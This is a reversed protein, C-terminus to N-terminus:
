GADPSVRESWEEACRKIDKLDQRIQEFSFGLAFFREVAESSLGRTSGDKRLIAIAALYADLQAEVRDLSPVVEQSRFASATASLFGAVAEGAKLVTPELEVRIPEPLPDQVARGIMVLDHRIRLLTRRVPATDPTDALRAKREHEAEAGVTALRSLSQGIGDQIKHLADTDLGSSLGLMLARLVRAMDELTRAAMEAVQGHARAPVVFYSVLFGSIAGVAVELIRDIASDLSSAPTFTPLLLVIIATVPAVRLRPYLAAALAMPAIGIGLLIILQVETPRPALLAVASGYVAGGITGLLYDITARFSAGVSVQTVVVATLVAWLPLRLGAYQAIILSVIAAITVRIAFAVAARYRALLFRSLRVINIALQM